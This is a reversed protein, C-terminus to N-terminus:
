TPRGPNSKWRSNTAHTLYHLLGTAGIPERRGQEWHNVTPQTAGKALQAQSMGQAERARRIHKGWDALLEDISEDTVRNV